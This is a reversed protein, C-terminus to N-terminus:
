SPVRVDSRARATAARLLAPGIEALPLIEVAAGLEAAVRPMGYVASTARDQAITHGGRSRIGLLGEAGDRGMGTLLAAVPPARLESAADFLVDVSPRHGSRPAAEVLRCAPVSGGAIALHRAGGPAIYVHGRELPTGDRAETVRARSSRALGAVFNGTLAARMHQVVLTPPCDSPFRPLIEYLAEVGGTSAGILITRPATPAASAGSRVRGPAAEAGGAGDEARRGRPVAARVAAALHTVEAETVSNEDSPARTQVGRRAAGARAPRAEGVPVIAVGHRRAAAAFDPAQVADAMAGVVVLADPALAHIQRMAQAPTTAVGVVELRPLRALGERMRSLWLPRFDLLVIRVTM